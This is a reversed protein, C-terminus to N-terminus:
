TLNQQCWLHDLKQLEPRVYSHESEVCYCDQQAPALLVSIPAPDRIDPEPVGREGIARYLRIAAGETERALKDFV